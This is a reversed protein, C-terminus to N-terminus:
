LIIDMEKLNEEVRIVVDVNKSESVRGFYVLRITDFPRDTVYPKLSRNLVYNPTNCQKNEM